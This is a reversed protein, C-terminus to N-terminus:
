VMSAKFNPRHACLKHFLHNRGETTSLDGSELCFRISSFGLRQAQQTLESQSHCMVEFLGVQPSSVRHPCKEQARRFEQYFKETLRRIQQQYGVDMQDTTHFVFDTDKETVEPMTSKDSM